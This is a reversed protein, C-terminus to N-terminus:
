RQGTEEWQLTLIQPSGFCVLGFLFLIRSGPIQGAAGHLAQSAEKGWLQAM